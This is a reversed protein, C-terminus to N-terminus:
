NVGIMGPKVTMVPVPSLEVIKEATTGLKNKTTGPIINATMVILDIKEDNVYKLIEDVPEGWKVIKQITSVDDSLNEVSVDIKNHALEEESDYINAMDETLAPITEYPIKSIVHLIIVEANFLKRLTSAHELAPLSNGSFDIPVLIKQVNKM